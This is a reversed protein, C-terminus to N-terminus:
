RPNSSLGPVSGSHVVKLLGLLLLNEQHAFRARTFRRHAADDEAIIDGFIDATEPGGYIDLVASDLEQATKYEIKPIASPISCICTDGQKCRSGQVSALACSHILCSAKM